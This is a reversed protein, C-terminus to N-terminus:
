AELPAMGPLKKGECYELSAGGGTSVWSVKDEFGFERVASATDGGGIVSTAGAATCKVVAEGVAITGAAFLKNEFVGMPGNWLVSKAGTLAEAFLKATKPGIDLGMKDAPMSASDVVATEKAELGDAVVSDVPLLIKVGMGEAKKLTERAFDLRDAECLSKGVPHGQAKLFTYAMGGGILITTAENLLNGVVDIKDSVKAGGLILVYPKVPHESVSGLMEGEKVLVDGAFSPLVSMIGNTSADARHSASFADMVFVDFAKGLQAAFAADNEQEEAHFRVNELLLIDGKPLKEMAAAVRPGVCEDVFHVKKGYAKEVDPVIQGLSMEPVPKGKPRGFHSVLAVKAGADLLKGITSSHARIRADDTVKGNKFPVNFDVRVLAKKNEVDRSGFTKLKVQM